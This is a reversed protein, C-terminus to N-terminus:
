PHANRAIATADRIVKTLNVREDWQALRGIPRVNASWVPESALPLLNGHTVVIDGSVYWGDPFLFNLDSTLRDEDADGSFECVYGDSHHYVRHICDGPTFPAYVLDWRLFRDRTAVVPVLNLRVAMADVSSSEWLPRTDVYLDFADKREPEISLGRLLPERLIEWALAISQRKPGAEPDSIRRAEGIPPMVLHTKRWYAHVASATMNGRIPVIKGHLMVGTNVSYEGYPVGLRELLGIVEPSSELHKFRPILASHGPVSREFVRVTHGADRMVRAVVLGTMDGGYIGVKM